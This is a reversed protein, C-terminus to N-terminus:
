YTLPPQLLICACLGMVSVTMTFETTKKRKGKEPNERREGDWSIECGATDGAAGMSPSLLWCIGYRHM